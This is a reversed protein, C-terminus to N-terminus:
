KAPEGLYVHDFKERLKKAIDTLCDRVVDYPRNLSYGISLDGSRIRYRLRATVKYPDEGIFPSIGLVFERPIKLDGTGGASAEIEEDYTMQVAGDSLRRASRFQAKTTAEISQAIELMTAADPERIEQLGEEIHEAFREQDLLEGSSGIWHQWEDTMSLNLEIRHDRWGPEIDSQDNLVGIIRHNELDVWVTTHGEADLHRTLYDILSDVTAALYIGSKRRPIPLLHETDLIKLGSSRPVLMAYSEDLKIPKPEAALLATDAIVQADPRSPEFTHTTTESSNYEM